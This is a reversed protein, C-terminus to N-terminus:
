LNRYIDILKKGEKDWNYCEKVMKKGKEGMQRAIDKNKALYEIAGAISLSDKPDVAVGCGDAIQRWMPFNSYILPVGAAMYEFIKNPVAELNVGTPLFCVLAVDAKAIALYAEKLPIWGLLVVRKWGPSSIVKNKFDDETFKGALELVVNIVPDVLGIADVIQLIGRVFEFNGAYIAAFSSGAGERFVKVPIDEFYSLLPYNSITEVRRSKFKGAIHPTAGIVCDFFRAMTKEMFGFAFSALPKFFNPLWQRYFVASPADEHSDYIVKKGCFVKLFFGTPVLEPDHFHYVDANRKAAAFFMKIPMICFRSFRNKAPAIPIILIGGIVEEKQHQGIIEVHFGAAALTVAEKHFIRIDTATHATTLICINKIM